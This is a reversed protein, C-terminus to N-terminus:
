YCQRTLERRVFVLQLLKKRPATQFTNCIGSGFHLTAMVFGTSRHELMPTPCVQVSCRLSAGCRLTAVIAQSVWASAVLWVPGTFAQPRSTSCVSHLSGKRQPASRCAGAAPLSSFPNRMRVSSAEGGCAAVAQYMPSWVADAEASQCDLGKWSFCLLILMHGVIFAWHNGRLKLRAKTDFSGQGECVKM